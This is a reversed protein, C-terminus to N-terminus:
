NASFKNVLESVLLRHLLVLGINRIYIDTRGRAHLDSEQVNIRNYGQTTPM